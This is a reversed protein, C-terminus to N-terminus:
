VIGYKKPHRIMDGCWTSLFYRLCNHVLIGNAYFEHTDAVTIDYVRMKGIHRAKEVRLLVHAPATPNERISTQPSLVGATKAYGKSTTLEAIGETRQNAIILASSQWKIARQLSRVVYRVIPLGMNLIGLALTKLTNNTGSLGKRLVTGRRLMNGGSRLWSGLNKLRDIVAIYNAMLRHLLVNLILSTMTAHTITKTTYTTDMLYRELITLGYKGTSAEQVEAMPLEQVTTIGKSQINGGDLGETYSTNKCIELGEEFISFIKTYGVGHAYFKHDPTCMVKSGDSMTFEYVDAVSDWKDTVPRYGERTLVMDGLEVDRIQRNGGSTMVLTDGVFCDLADARQEEKARSKKNIGGDDNAETYLIENILLKCNDDVKLDPHLAFAYNCLDRTTNVHPNVNPTHMRRGLKLGTSIREWANLNKGGINTDISRKKQTADGTWLCTMLDAMTYRSKIVEIMDQVGKNKLVIEDLVRVHHGKNDTWIQGVICVFPDVNFDISFRLPVGEVRELKGTHKDKNFNYIFPRGVEGRGWEGLVYIRYYNPNVKSKLELTRKYEEDLFENDRYTTKVITCGDVESDFFREKIWHREDIPNFSLLIQKYNITEGRLRLDIQDFDDSTLETAEEIWVGTVGTISKLKEVDDLGGMLIENGTADHTIRMESKNINFEDFIGFDHITDILLQFVSSRLTNAVKRVLLFRHGNETTLRFIIKQAAFHSKGSGASGYLILYRDKNELYPLYVDNLTIEKQM